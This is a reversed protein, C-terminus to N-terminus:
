VGHVTNKFQYKYLNTTLAKEEKSFPM